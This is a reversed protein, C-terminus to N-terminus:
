IAALKRYAELFDKPQPLIADELAPNYAVWTDQAAVRRVPADLRDFM